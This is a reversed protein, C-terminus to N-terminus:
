ERAVSNYSQTSINYVQIGVKILETPTTLPLDQEIALPAVLIVVGTLIMMPIKHGVVCPQRPVWYIRLHANLQLLLGYLRFSNLIFPFGMFNLSNMEAQGERDFPPSAIM